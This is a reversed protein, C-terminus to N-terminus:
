GEEDSSNLIEEILNDIEDDTVTEDDASEDFVGLEEGLALLEEQTLSDIYADVEEDTLEEEEEPLFADPNFPQKLDDEPGKGSPYKWLGTHAIWPSTNSVESGPLGNPAQDLDEPTQMQAAYASRFAELAEASYDGGIRNTM